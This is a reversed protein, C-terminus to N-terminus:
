ATTQERTQRQIRALMGTMGRLRLPSVIKSLGLSQPFDTPVGLLTEPDSGSLGQILISAFGRTTPAEPPASAFINAVGGKVEVIISIPSQCEVVPELLEPHEALRQPLPPLDESFELLLNLRESEPIANFDDVIDALGEPLNM